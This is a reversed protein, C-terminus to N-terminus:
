FNKRRAGEELIEKRRKFLFKPVYKNTFISIRTSIEKIRKFVFKSVYKELNQRIQVLFVESFV